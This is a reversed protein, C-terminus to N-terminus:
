MVNRSQGLKEGAQEQIQIFFCKKFTWMRLDTQKRKELTPRQCREKYFVKGNNITTKFGHSKNEVDATKNM